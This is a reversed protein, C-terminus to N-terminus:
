KKAGVIRALANPSVKWPTLDRFLGVQQCCAIVFESCFWDDPHQKMWPLVFRMVGAYDYGSGLESRAFDLVVKEDVHDTIELAVWEGPKMIFDPLIHVGNTDAASSIATGDSLLLETHDFGGNGSLWNVPSFWGAKHFALIM